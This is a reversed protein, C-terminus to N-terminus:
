RIEGGYATIAVNQAANLPIARQPKLADQHLFTQMARRSDRQQTVRQALWDGLGLAGNQAMSQAVEQHFMQEFTAMDSSHNLESKLPQNAERMSEFVMQLFMAEFQRGVERAAAQDDSRARTRLQNLGALDFHSKVSQNSLSLAIETM